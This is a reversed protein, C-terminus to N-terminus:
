AARPQQRREEPPGLDSNAPGNVVEGTASFRSGHCPCDWTKETGNWQVICGLHPCTASREVITGDMHRYVAVKGMGRRMLAGEGPAVESLANVEGGKVHSAYQRLVNLNEAAFTRAAAVPKRAPDYLAAWPNGRGLILDSIVMAGITGHTLGMGSDGTHIYVNGDGGPNRGSFALYDIPEMVQGGWRHVIPGVPFRERAWQELRAYRDEQDTAQGSKHDEGGVIVVDEDGHSAVRVYHYPDGTDWALMAPVAGRPVRLAIVYTMYPAQKTHITVRDNIPSNTAFVIAGARVEFAGVRLGVASPQARAGTFIRGGLRETAKALGALYQLPHFQAARPYRLTEGFLPHAARAVDALGARHAAALERDLTAPTDGEALFLYGDVRAFDCDIEEAGVIAEIRDIAARHSEAALRIGREGHIKELEFYFDDMAYSLHASTRGTMGGGVPGDDLVAVRVGAKALLYATTMGAIGAGVICADMELDGELTRGAIPTATAEWLSISRSMSRDAALSM